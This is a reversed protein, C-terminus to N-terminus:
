LHFMAVSTLERQNGYNIGDAPRSIKLVEASRARSGTRSSSYGGRGAALRPTGRAASGSRLAPASGIRGPIEASAIFSRDSRGTGAHCPNGTGRSHRDRRIPPPPRRWCNRTSGFLSASQNMFSRTVRSMCNRHSGFMEFWTDADPYHGEKLPQMAERTMTPRPPVAECLSAYAASFPLDAPPEARRGETRWGIRKM